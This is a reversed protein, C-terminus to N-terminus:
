DTPTRPVPFPQTASSINVDPHCVPHDGAAEGEMLAARYDDAREGVHFTCDPEM